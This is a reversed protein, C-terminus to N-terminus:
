YAQLGFVAVLFDLVWEFYEPVNHCFHADFIRYIQFYNFDYIFSLFYTLVTHCSVKSDKFCKGNYYIRRLVRVLLLCKEQSYKILIYLLPIQALLLFLKKKASEQQKGLSIMFSSMFSSLCSVSFFFVGPREKM